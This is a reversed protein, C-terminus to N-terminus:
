RAPGLVLFRNGLEGRTGSSQRACGRVRKLLCPTPTIQDWSASTLRAPRVEIGDLHQQDRDRIAPVDHM